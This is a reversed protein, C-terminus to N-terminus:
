KPIKVDRECFYCFTLLLINFVTLIASLYIFMKDRNHNKKMSYHNNEYKELCLCLMWKTLKQTLLNFRNM